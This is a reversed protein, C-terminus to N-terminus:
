VSPSGYCLKPSSIKPLALQIIFRCWQCSCISEPILDICAELHHSLGFGVLLRLAPSCITEDSGEM